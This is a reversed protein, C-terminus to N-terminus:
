WFYSESVHKWSTKYYIKQSMNKTIKYKSMVDSVSFNKSFDICIENVISENLIARSNCSGVTSALLKNEKAHEMNRKHSVWELNAIDNNTKNGDIHNVEELNFPNEIFVLAVLRHVRHSLYRRTPDVKACKVRVEVYGKRNVYTCKNKKTKIDRILGKSNIEYKEFGIFDTLPKYLEEM